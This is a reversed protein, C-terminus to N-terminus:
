DDLWDLSSGQTSARSESTVSQKMDKDLRTATYPVYDEHETRVDVANAVLGLVMAGSRNLLSKAANASAIDVGRPRVVQIVGDAMKGLIAGDAAGALPPTDIIVSDYRQSFEQLLAAMQESDLLALPNPPTVGASLLTLKHTVPQLAEALHGEGVLVHSLGIGNVRNWLHHQDPSRMDADVLLVKRGAQSITLALQASVSSKGEGMVSSTIVFTKLRKDSSVFKLNAQLMQYADSVMPYLGPGQLLPLPEILAEDDRGANAAGLRYRPILGLLPYGFLAEAEKVTKLSRDILDLLFAVAVGLLVGVVGGAALYLKKSPGVSYQPLKAQEIISANGVTQNEALQVEQQRLLLTEYTTQAAQLRNELQRQRKELDPFTSNWELYANRTQVLSNLRSALSLRNVETQVLEATLQQKLQGMQLDGPSVEIAQGLVQGVREQLLRYASAEQRQLNEVVPHRDTYRSGESALQTQVEQLDALAQQVGPAQSLSSLNVAQDSTMGLQYALEQSRTRVDALEATAQSIQNDLTALSNVAVSAEAQLEVINNQDKFRRLAEAADAVAQEAAPLEENIFERAIAAESRNTRIDYEIYSQMLQNVMAEALEPNPSQYTVTLVDTGVLGRIAIGPKIMETPILQGTRDQLNLAQIAKEILPDSKLIVAQTDLPNNQFDVSELRGLNEGVGTLSTTASSQFLLKGTAQYVPTRTLAYVAALVMSGTFVLSAALWRRRLVLWYKQFDIEEIYEKADM